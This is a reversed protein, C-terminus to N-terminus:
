KNNLENCNKLYIWKLLTNYEVNKNKNSYNQEINNKIIDRKQNHSHRSLADCASSTPLWVSDEGALSQNEFVMTKKKIM